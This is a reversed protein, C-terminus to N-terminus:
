SGGRQASSTRKPARHPQGAFTLAVWTGGKGTGVTGSSPTADEIKVKVAQSTTQVLGRDLWERALSAITTATFTQSETFSDSYDFALSITVDHGTVRKALLLVRDIFQEGQLGATKIWGTVARQTVWTSVDLHASADNASREYYLTANSRLWCYRWADTVYLVAAHQAPVGNSDLKIDISVWTGLTLDYILDRGNGSVLGGSESEARTMRVLSASQDLVISSTIPYSAGTEQVRTGVFDVNQGGRQLVEPGRTSRFFIGASTACTEPGSAGVPVGLRRPIGLGGTTFNDNAPEGATAFITARSFAYLTGDQSDMATVTDDVLQTLDDHFWISEGDVAQASSWLNQGCAGVLMGNYATLYRLGPPAHKHLSSGNTEPLNGNGYLLQRSTLTADPVTDTFASIRNSPDMYITAVRYYPPEGGDTTRYLAIRVRVDNTADLVRSTITYPRVTVVVDQTTIAGSSASPSSVASIAWNGDGENEEYVAVYRVGTTFTLSSGTTVDLEPKNPSYLFGAEAARTGDFQFLTGGEIYTSGNFTVPRSRTPTFDIRVLRTAATVASSTVGIASIYVGASPSVWHCRGQPPATALRPEVNAVPRISPTGDTIDGLIMMRQANEGEEINDPSFFAYIRGDYFFPRSRTVANYWTLQSGAGTAAGASTIVGRAFFRDLSGDNVLLVCAATTTAVVGISVVGGATSSILSGTTALTSALSDADLGKIKVVTSENWAVWLTDAISGAVAVVDPTTSSTNVTATELVASTSLTKVTVRSTGGSNNVYVFAVRNTLSETSVAISALGTTSKDTAATPGSLWGNSIGLRSGLDIYYTLVNASNSDVIFAIVYQGGYSALAVTTETVTGQALFAPAAVVAGTLDQVAAYIANGGSGPSASYATVVYNGVAAIDVVSASTGSSAVSINPADILEFNAAPLRHGGLWCGAEPSYSWLRRKASVMCPTGKHDFCYLGEDDDDIVSDLTNTTLTAVGPRKTYGGKQNQRGNNLVAFARAPDVLEDRVSEDIGGSFSIDLIPDSM